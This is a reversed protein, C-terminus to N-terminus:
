AIRRTHDDNLSKSATERFQGGCIRCRSLICGVFTEAQLWPISGLRMDSPAESWQVFQKTDWNPVLRRDGHNINLLVDNADLLCSIDTGEKDFCILPRAVLLGKPASCRLRVGTWLELYADTRACVQNGDRAKESARELARAVTDSRRKHASPWRVPSHEQTEAHFEVSAQLFPLCNDRYRCCLELRSEHLRHCM